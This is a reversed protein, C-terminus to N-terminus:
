IPHFMSVECLYYYSYSCPDDNFTALPAGPQLAVQVCDQVGQLNNPQGMVWNISTSGFTINSSCWRFELNCGKQSASTWYSRSALGLSDLL